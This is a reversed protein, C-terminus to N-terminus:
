PKLGHHIPGATKPGTILPMWSIFAVLLLPSAALLRKTSMDGTELPRHSGKLDVKEWYSRPSLKLVEIHPSKSSVLCLVLRGRVQDDLSLAPPNAMCVFRDEEKVHRKEWTCVSVRQEHSHTLSNVAKLAM